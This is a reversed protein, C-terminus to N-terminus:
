PATDGYTARNEAVAGGSAALARYDRVFLVPIAGNL